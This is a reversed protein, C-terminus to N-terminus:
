AAIRMPPISSAPKLNLGPQRALAKAENLRNNRDTSANIEASSFVFGDRAPDYSVGQSLSLQSLLRAEEMDLAHQQKREAQLAQLQQMNQRFARNIRQEYLTILQLQKLTETTSAPDHPMTALIRSKLARAHNLRWSDEAVMHALQQEVPNEPKFTEILQHCFIDHAHRDEPSMFIVQGTLNHRVANVRSRRKGEFSRPGTSHLANARNAALQKESIM